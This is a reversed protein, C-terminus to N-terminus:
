TPAKTPREKLSDDWLEDDYYKNLEIAEEPDILIGAGLGRRVSGGAQSWRCADLGFGKRKWTIKNVLRLVTGAYRKYDADGYPFRVNVEGWYLLPLDFAWKKSPDPWDWSSRKLSMSLGPEVLGFTALLEVDRRFSVKKDDLTIGVRGADGFVIGTLSTCHRGRVGPGYYSFKVSPDFERLVRSFALEDRPTLVVRKSRFSTERQEKYGM